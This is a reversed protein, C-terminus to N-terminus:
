EKIADANAAGGKQRLEHLRGNSRHDIVLNLVAPGTKVLIKLDLWPSLLRSYLIDLSVMQAFTLNNKGSVQWLGTMGPVTDFRGNHWFLYEDVEYPIAPRPGVLSMDGLFVNFLQPLEDLCSKRLIGGFRIVRPDNEIKKLVVTGRGQGASARILGALHERHVSADADVEMSRFKWLPFQKKLYGIREQRFFVPGPSVLKIYVAIIL